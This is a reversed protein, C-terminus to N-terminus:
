PAAAPGTPVEGTAGGAGGGTAAQNLLGVLDAGLCERDRYEIKTLVRVIERKNTAQDKKAQVLASLTSNAAADFAAMSALLDATAAREEKLRSADEKWGKVLWGAAFILACFGIAVLADLAAKNLM